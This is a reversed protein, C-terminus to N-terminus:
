INGNLILLLTQSYFTTLLSNHLSWKVNKLFHPHQPYTKKRIRESFNVYFITQGSLDLFLDNFGLTRLLLNPCFNIFISIKSKGFNISKQKTQFTAVPRGRGIFM